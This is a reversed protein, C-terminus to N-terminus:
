RHHAGAKRDRRWIRHHSHRGASAVGNTFFDWRYLVPIKQMLERYAAISKQALPHEEKIEWAPLFSNLTITKNKWSTGEAIYVEWSADTDAILANMEQSLFDLNEQMTTRRDIQYVSWIPRDSILKLDGSKINCLGARTGYM